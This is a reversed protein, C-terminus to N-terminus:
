RRYGKKAANKEEAAVVASPRFRATKGRTGPLPQLGWRRLLRHLVERTARDVPPSLQWRRCLDEHSLLQAQEVSM